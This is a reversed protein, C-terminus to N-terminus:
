PHVGLMDETRRLEDWLEALLLDMEGAELGCIELLESGGEYTLGDVGAGIGMVVSLLDSLAVVAGLHNERCAEPQHHIRVGEVIEAPFNWRSLIEAGIRAHDAGLVEAEAVYFPVGREKVLATIREFDDRVYTHLVIKGIDHLLATTFLHPPFAERCRRAILKSATATTVSHWWLERSKLDYGPVSESLLREGCNAMIIDVLQRQGLLSIATSLSEVKRPLGFAASNCVRLINTTIGQDYKVIEVMDQVTAKPDDMLLMVRHAIEPFPPLRDVAAYIEDIKKPNM